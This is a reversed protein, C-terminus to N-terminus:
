VPSLVVENWFESGDKRYNRVVVKAERGLALAASFEAVAAPDTGPGQLISCSRGAVEDPSYGTLREFGANAYVLPFGPRTADAIVVGNAAAALARESRRLLERDRRREAEWAAAVHEGLVDGVVELAHGFSARTNLSESSSM